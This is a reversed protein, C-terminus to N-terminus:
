ELILLKQIESNTNKYRVGEIIIIINQVEIYMLSMLAYFAIPANSSSRIMKRNIIYKLRKTYDEIYNFEIKKMQHNYSTLKIRKIFDEQTKTEILEDISKESLKYYIPIIHTKIMEADKQFYFKLRFILSLNLLEVEVKVIEILEKKTKGKYKKDIQSLIWEYYYTKLALECDKYNVKGNEANYIKLISYYPTNKLVNLLDSFSKVKSLEKLDFKIYDKLFSPISSIIDSFSGSNIYIITKLIIAFEVHIIVYGFFGKNNSFDYHLLSFYKEFISRELLNELQGRHIAMENVGKLYKFYSTNTKLYGCVDSVTTLRLLESYNTNTLRKGYIARAKSAIANSSLSTLM